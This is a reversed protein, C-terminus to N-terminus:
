DPADAPEEGGTRRYRAPPVNESAQFVRTFYSASAFGCQEAVDCMKLDTTLLLDKAKTVRRTTIYKKFSMGIRAKVVRSATYDTIRFKEAIDNLGFYADFLHEDIFRMLAEEDIREPGARGGAPGEPGGPVPKAANRSRRVAGRGGGNGTRGGARAARDFAGIFEAYARQRLAASPNRRDLEDFIEQAVSVARSLDREVILPLSRRLVDLRDREGEGDRQETYFATGEGPLVTIAEIYSKDLESLRECFNGVGLPLGTKGAIDEMRRALRRRNANGARFSCIFVAYGADYMELVYVDERGAFQARLQNIDPVRGLPTAAVCYGAGEGASLLAEQAPPIRMGYLLKEYLNTRHLERQENAERQLEEHMKRQDEIYLKITTFENQIEADDNGPKQTTQLLQRVPTYTVWIVTAVLLVIVVILLINSRTISATFDRARQLFAEEEIALLATYDADGSGALSMMGDGVVQLGSPPVSDPTAIRTEGTRYIREGRADYLAALTCYDPLFLALSKQLTADAIVYIAVRRSAAGQQFSVPALYLLYGGDDALFCPADLSALRALVAELTLQPCYTRAFISPQVRGGNGYLLGSHVFYLAACQVTPLSHKTDNLYLKLRSIADDNAEAASSWQLYTDSTELYHHTVTDLSEILEDFKLAVSSAMQLTNQETERMLSEYGKRSLMLSSYLVPICALLVACALLRWLFTHSRFVACLKRGVNLM